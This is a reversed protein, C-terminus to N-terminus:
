GLASSVGLYGAHRSDVLLSAGIGISIALAALAVARLVIGVLDDPQRRRTTDSARRNKEPVFPVM